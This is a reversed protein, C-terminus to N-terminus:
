IKQAFKSFILKQFHGFNSIKIKIVYITLWHWLIWFAFIDRSFIQWILVVIRDNANCQLGLRWLIDGDYKKACISYGNTDCSHQKKESM